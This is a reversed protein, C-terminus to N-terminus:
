NPLENSSKEKKTLINNFHKNISVFDLLIITSKNPEVFLNPKISSLRDMTVIGTRIFSFPPHM